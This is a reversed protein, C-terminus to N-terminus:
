EGNGGLTLTFTLSKLCFDTGVNKRATSRKGDFVTRDCKNKLYLVNLRHLALKLQIRLTVNGDPFPVIPIYFSNMFKGIAMDNAM